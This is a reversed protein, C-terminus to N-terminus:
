YKLTAIASGLLAMSAVERCKALVSCPSVRTTLFNDALSISASFRVAPSTLGAHDGAPLPWGVEGLPGLEDHVDGRALDLVPFRSWLLLAFVRSGYSKCWFDGGLSGVSAPTHCALSRGVVRWAAAKVKIWGSRTGSRYRGDRRKSVIGELHMADAAALLKGSDEFSESYRLWPARVNRVIRALREKRHELRLERMDHGLALLDFAWVCLTRDRSRFHLARFDPLGREDCAVLEGDIVLSHLTLAALGRAIGPLRSTYDHGRKTYIAVERGRKHLQIRWSDFKVEHLWGPGSPPVARIRPLAPPIFRLV